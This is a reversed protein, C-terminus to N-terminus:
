SSCSLCNTKDVTFQLANVVSKSRLYYMGTKLGYEWATKHYASLKSISPKEMYLNLSQSQDIFPARDAAMKLQINNPIEWVTKYLEKVDNPIIDISQISGNNKIITNLMEDNWLKLEMLDDILYSNLMLFEGSLVRRNFINSTIPEYSETNGLIQATSATPMIAVLLSNRLGFKKIHGRLKSWDVFNITDNITKTPNVNWLDFQLIGQSTMSTGYSEYPGLEKALSCSEYLSAYYITEFINKNLKQAEECDYPLRLKMFTEALGQIGIGIPRNKLNSIKCKELPYTNKDIILNLNVVLMRTITYLQKFNFTKTKLDVFNPLSLSALNCVAYEEDSCYQIIETCLNGCKITGLNNQNCKRNCADKYLMFPTGTEIQSTLIEEFLDHAKIKEIYKGENVYKFYLKEFEDGYCEDLNRCVNSDMLYWDDNEVVCKMFLDPIWLAYFLDHCRDDDHGINKKLNLFDLIDAHWPEIYIAMAGPRKGGQNVYKATDNFLKLMPVIGSSKGDTKKIISGKSRIRNVNLGIGGFNKSIIATDKLISYIGEISDDKLPLLFCSSMQANPTAASFLTPSAHICIKESLMRYTAFVKPFDNDHIGIAVRMFLYQPREIIKDNIKLLYSKELTKIAFYNFTFDNKKEIRNDILHKNKLIIDYHFESIKEDNFLLEMAQSFRDCTEKHLKSTYVQGALLLYNYHKTISASTEAILKDIDRTSVRDPLGRVIETTLANVDIHKNDFQTIKKIIKEKDFPIVENKRNIVNKVKFSM